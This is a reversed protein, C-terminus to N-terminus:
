ERPVLSITGDDAVTALEGSVAWCAGARDTLLVLAAIGEDDKHFGLPVHRRRAVRGVTTSGPALPRLEDDVVAVGPHPAFRRRAGGTGLAAAGLLCSGLTDLVITRPLLVQLRARVEPSLHGGGSSITLLSSTDYRDGRESLAEALPRAMRDGILSITNGRERGVLRWVEDPDFSPSTPFVATGGGLLCVLTAWQGNAHTLPATVVSVLRESASGMREVIQGPATIPRGALGGGHLAAFFFDEHRWIVARLRGRRMGTYFFYLDDGRRRPGLWARGTLTAEAPGLATEYPPHRGSGNGALGPIAGVDTAAGPRAQVDDALVLRHRLSRLRGALEDVLRAFRHEYVLVAVDAHDLVQAVRDAPAGIDVNVPVARAKFSGLLVELWEVRNAALVGVRTGPEIGWSLLLEAFRRARAELARYSCRREGVVVADREPVAAAILEFLDALNFTPRRRPPLRGSATAGPRTPTRPEV